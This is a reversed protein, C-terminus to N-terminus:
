HTRGVEPPGSFALMIGGCKGQIMDQGSQKRPPTAVPVGLPVVLSNCPKLVYM